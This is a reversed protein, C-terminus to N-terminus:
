IWRRTRALFDIYPQGFRRTLYAEERLVVGWHLLAWIVPTLMVLWDLSLALALGLEAVVIGLYMPNRTFRYPGGEVLRLAPRHPNVNTAAKEFTQKGWFALAGGTLVLVVGLLAVGNLGLPPLLRLPLLWGLLAAVFPTAAALLPPFM